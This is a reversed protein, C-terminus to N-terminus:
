LKALWTGVEEPKLFSITAWDDSVLILGVSMQSWFLSRAYRRLAPRYGDTFPVAIAYHAHPDPQTIRGAVEGIALRLEGEDSHANLDEGKVEVMWREQGDEAVVNWSFHEKPLVKYGQGAFWKRVREECRIERM